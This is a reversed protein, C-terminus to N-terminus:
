ADEGEPQEEAVPIYVKKLHLIQKYKDDLNEYYRLVLTTLDNGNIGRIIPTNDLYHRANKTYDSLTVFLGYDGEKMAGKLSQLKSESIDGDNSKVQVLIRPPLEDKYATIDVGRDGGHKSVTTRYGMANLLKAVFDELDYGKLSRSLEKLIYDKSSQEIEESTAGISEDEVDDDSQPVFGKDLAKMFEDYYNKVSFFSMAASVEYLAGQSFDTRPLHKLWKVKRRHSYTACGEEHYYDSEIRGINIKRDTKSPFVVIDGVNVECAFRYVQGAGHAIGIKTFDPNCQECIKKFADRTAEIRTLDGMEEWGIAIVGKSLFLDEDRTHIGWMRVADKGDM